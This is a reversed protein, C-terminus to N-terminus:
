SLLMPEGSVRLRIASLDGITIKFQSLWVYNSRQYTTHGTPLAITIPIL